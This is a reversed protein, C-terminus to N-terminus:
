EVLEWQDPGTKRYAKGGIVRTEQRVQEVAKEAFTGQGRNLMRHSRLAATQLRAASADAQQLEAYYRMEEPTAPRHKIKKVEKGKEFVYYPERVYVGQAPVDEYIRGQLPWPLYPRRVHPTKIKGPEGKFEEGEM